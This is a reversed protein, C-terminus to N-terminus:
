ELPVSVSPSEITLIENFETILDGEVRTLPNSQIYAIKYDYATVVHDSSKYILITQNTSLGM